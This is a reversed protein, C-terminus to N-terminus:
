RRNATPRMHRHPGYKGNFFSFYRYLCINTNEKKEGHTGPAKDNRDGQCRKEIKEKEIRSKRDREVKSRKEEEQLFESLRM